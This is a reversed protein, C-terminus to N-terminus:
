GKPKHSDEVGHIFVDDLQELEKLTCSKIVRNKFKEKKNTGHVESIFENTQDEIFEKYNHYPM